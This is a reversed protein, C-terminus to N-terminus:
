QRRKQEYMLRDARALLEEISEGDKPGRCAVGVSLSLEYPHERRALRKNLAHQLRQAVTDAAKRSAGFALVAFEDGGVRAVVDSKRFTKSLVRAAEQLAEDGVRHGFQDNIAKFGDLDAFLLLVEGEERDALKLQQEALTIFGRRNYLGTLEDRLSLERLRERMRVIETIDRLTAVHASNGEWVTKVVRMQAVAEDGDPGALNVERVEEPDLPLRFPEGVFREAERHFLAVAAPNVFQVIGEEDVVVMADASSDVVRRLSAEARERAQRIRTREVAYLIARSLERPNMRSKVLYDAAGERATDLVLRTEDLSTLVIIPIGEARGRVKEVDKIALAGPASIGLLIVDCKGQGIRELGADLGAVHELEFAIGAPGSLMRKVLETDEESEEILLVSIRDDDM